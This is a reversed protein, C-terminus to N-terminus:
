NTTLSPTAPVSPLSSLYSHIYQIRVAVFLSIPRSEPSASAGTDATPAYRHALM